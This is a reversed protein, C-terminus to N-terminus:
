LRSFLLGDNGLLKFAPSARLHPYLPGNETTIVYRVALTDLAPQNDSDFSFERNTESRGDLNKVLDLVAAAVFPDFGQPSALGHHRLEAPM